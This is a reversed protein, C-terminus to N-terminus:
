LVAFAPDTRRSYEYSGRDLCLICGKCTMMQMGRLGRAAGYRRNGARGMARATTGAPRRPKTYWQVHVFDGFPDLRVQVSSSYCKFCRLELTGSGDTGPRYLAYNPNEGGSRARRHVRNTFVCRLSNDTAKLRYAGDPRRSIDFSRGLRGDYSLAALVLPGDPM